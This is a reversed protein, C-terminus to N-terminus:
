KEAFVNIIHLILNGNRDYEKQDVCHGCEDYIYDIWSTATGDKSFCERKVLNNDDYTHKITAILNGDTDYEAFNRIGDKESQIKYYKDLEGKFYRKYGILINKNYEYYEHVLIDDNDYDVFEILNGYEDYEHKIHTSNITEEDTKVKGNKHYTYETNQIQDGNVIGSKAVLMNDKDYEFQFSMYDSDIFFSESNGVFKGNQETYYVPLVQSYNNTVVEVQSVQNSESFSYILSYDDNSNSSSTVMKSIQGDENYWTETTQSKSSDFDDSSDVINGYRIQTTKAIYYDNGNQKQLGIILFAVIAFLILITCVLFIIKLNTKNRVPKTEVNSIPEGCNSCFLATKDVQAGCKKCAM